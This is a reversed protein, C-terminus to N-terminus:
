KPVGNTGNAASKLTHRIWASLTEHESANAAKEFLKRDEPNVRVPIIDAKAHGKPLKPRGMKKAKPM